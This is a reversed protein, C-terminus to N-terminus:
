TTAFWVSEQELAMGSRRLADVLEKVEPEFAHYGPHNLMATFQNQTDAWVKENGMEKLLMRWNPMLWLRIADGMKEKLRAYNLLGVGDYDPFHWITPSRNRKGLWDIVTNSLNGRYYAVSAHQGGPLWDTRDFVEQNEVLWLTSTTAWGSCGHVALGAAGLTDTIESLNISNGKGDHWLVNEASSKLLLYSIEHGHESSKSSRASAINRARTPLHEALEGVDRPVLQRWHQELVSPKNIVFVRGAGQKIKEICGSSRALDDLATLQAASLMSCPLGSESAERLKKIGAILARSM